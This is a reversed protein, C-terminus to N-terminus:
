GNRAFTLMDELTKINQELLDDSKSFLRICDSFFEPNRAKFEVFEDLWVRVVEYNSAM